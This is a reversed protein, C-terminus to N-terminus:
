TLKLPPDLEMLTSMEESTLPKMFLNGQAVDCGLNRLQELQEATEVGEAVVRLDLAHALEIIASVLVTDERDEGLGGVFFKDIKLEDVPLRKLYALSSYGTGFDDISLQVGLERLELLRACASEGAEMAISETIELTLKSLDMQTKQLIQIIEQSLRPHQFQRMSLNVCVQLSSAGTHQEQWARTQRCAEDLVLHGIPVILGTEEALPIFEDPPVLGRESHEWRVLAEVGVVRGTELLVKPQYHIVFEEREVARKLENELKLRELAHLYMSPDFVEYHAKGWKKAQYMAADANSVLDEPEEQYSSSSAIGISTTTFVEEGGLLIPAQLEEIIREAVLTADGVSRANQLLIIFEDGGLRAVTDEPRVCEELRRAVTVLLQDGAEHGLSDNISKFNDLDLFLVAVHEGYREIRSLAHQLRDTFLARNPLGTLSDHFAQHKLREELAKRETTDRVACLVEDPGSVVMRAEFDLLGEPVQLQYEYVQMEGKDLTRAIKHLFPTSVEPPLLDGLNSGLLKERPLYLKGPANAQIDLYDGNRNYLFMLDPTAELIAKNRAESRRLEEEARKRETIDNLTGSTGFVAGDEGLTLRAWVEVWRFGGDRTLYRIEYRCHDKEREILPRFLELNRQRDDPHVYDLFDTGISGEM